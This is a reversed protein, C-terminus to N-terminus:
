EVDGMFDECIQELAERAINLLSLRIANKNDSQTDDIARIKFLQEFTEDTTTILPTVMHYNDNSFVLKVSAETSVPSVTMNSLTDAQEVITADLKAIQDTLQISEEIHMDIQKLTAMHDAMLDRYQDELQAYDKELDLIESKAKKGFIDM